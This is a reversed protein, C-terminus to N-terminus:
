SIKIYVNNVKGCEGDTWELGCKTCYLRVDDVCISIYARYTGNNCRPCIQKENIDEDTEISLKSM